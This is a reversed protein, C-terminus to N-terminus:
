RPINRVNLVILTTLKPTHPFIANPNCYGCSDGGPFGNGEVQGGGEPDGMAGAVLAMIDDGVQLVGADNARAFGGSNAVVALQLLPDDSVQLQDFWSESIIRKANFVQKIM